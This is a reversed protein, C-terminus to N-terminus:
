KSVIMVKEGNKFQSIAVPLGFAQNVILPNHTHVSCTFNVLTVVKASPFSACISHRTPAEFGCRFKSCVLLYQSKCIFCLNKWEWALHSHMLFMDMNSDKEVYHQALLVFHHILAIRAEM